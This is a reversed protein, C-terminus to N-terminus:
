GRSHRPVWRIPSQTPGDPRTRFVEGVGPNSGRMCPISTIDRFFTASLVRSLLCVSTALSMTSVAPFFALDQSSVDPGGCLMGVTRPVHFRM